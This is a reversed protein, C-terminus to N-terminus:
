DRASATWAVPLARRGTPRVQHTPPAPSMCWQRVHVDTTQRPLSNSASCTTRLFCEVARTVAEPDEAPAEHGTDLVKVLSDPVRVAMRLAQQLPFQVDHFGHLILMPLKLE